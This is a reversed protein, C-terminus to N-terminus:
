NVAVVDALCKLIGLSSVDVNCDDRQRQAHLAITAPGNNGFLQVLWYVLRQGDDFGGFVFWGCAGEGCEEGAGMAARDHM